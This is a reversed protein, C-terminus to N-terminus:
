RLEALMERTQQLFVEAGTKEFLPEAEELCAIAKAKRKKAKHLRALDLLARARLGYAGKERYFQASRALLSEARRAAFPRHTLLFFLKKLMVVPSLPAGIVMQLYVKGKLM